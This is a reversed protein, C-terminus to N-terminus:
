TLPGNINILEKLARGTRTSVGNRSLNVRELRNYVVFEEVLQSGGVDFLFNNELNISQLKRNKTLFLKFATISGAALHNHSLDLEVLKDLNTIFSIDTLANNSLVAVKFNNIVKTIESLVQKRNQSLLGFGKLYLIDEQGKERVLNMKEPPFDHMELIQLIKLM